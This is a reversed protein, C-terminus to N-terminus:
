LASPGPRVAAHFPQPKRALTKSKGIQTHAACAHKRFGDTTQAQDPLHATIHPGCLWAHHSYDLAHLLNELDKYPFHIHPDPSVHQDRNKTAESRSNQNKVTQSITQLAHFNVPLQMCRLLIPIYNTAHQFM